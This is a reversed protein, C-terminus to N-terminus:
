DSREGGCADVPTVQYYGTTAAAAAWATTATEAVLDGAAHPSVRRYVRYRSSGSCAAWSLALGDTGSRSARVSDGLPALPEAVVVDAAGPETDRNGFDDVARVEVHHSGPELGVAFRSQPAGGVLPTTSWAAGDVRVEVAAVHNISISPHTTGPFMNRNTAAVVSSLGTLAAPACVQLPVPDLFTDPDQGVVDIVGDGDLDAWGLQRRTSSCLADGNSIMVCPSAAPNCAECNANVGDLYGRHDSCTCASGAYEDFAYFAHLLEHRAVMDMRSIGWAQNDYTMVVHPGGIWTYAFRGDAFKGDADTLSDVVFITVAWDTGDAARTDADFARARAFRDGSAYGLKALVERAWRDEGTLGTPDAAHRIPEYGTRARADTRGPIVHYVFRLASQPEQLRIWEFGQAIRAVVENERSVTWSESQIDITGDSEVLVVNVSLSGALFESTNLATAGFPAASSTTAGQTRGLSVADLSVAPPTLADDILPEPVIEPRDANRPGGGAIANWASRGYSAATASEKPSIAVENLAVARVGPARFALVERGPPLTVVLVDGLTHLVRGGLAGVGATAAKVTAPKADDLILAVPRPAPQGDAAAASACLFGLVCFSLGPRM